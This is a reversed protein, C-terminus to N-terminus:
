ENVVTVDFLLNLGSIKLVYQPHSNELVVVNLKRGTGTLEKGAMVLAM